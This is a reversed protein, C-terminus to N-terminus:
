AVSVDDPGTGKAGTGRRYKEYPLPQQKLFPVILPEILRGPTTRQMEALVRLRWAWEDALSLTMKTRGVEDAKKASQKGARRAADEAGASQGEVVGDGAADPEVVREGEEESRRERRAM